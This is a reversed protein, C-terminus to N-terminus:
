CCDGGLQFFLFGQSLSISLTLCGVVNFALPNPFPVVFSHLLCVFITVFSFEAPRSNTNKVIVQPLRFANLYQGYVCIIFM